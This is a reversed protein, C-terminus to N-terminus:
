ERGEAENQPKDTGEEQIFLVKGGAKTLGNEKCAAIAMKVLERRLARSSQPRTLEELGSDIRFPVIGRTMTLGRLVQDDSCCTVIPVRPRYKSVLRALHGNKTVVAICDIASNLVLSVCSAALTDDAKVYSSTISKLNTLDTKYDITREAEACAKSLATLAQLAFPGAATEDSMIIADTGDTVAIQVDECEARTPKIATAMSDLMQTAMIIPKAVANARDMMWKQAIFVKEPPIEAAIDQRSVIVGDAVQLIEEFNNLGELNEIKAFVKMGTKGSMQETRYLLEKVYDVDERKRTWSVVIVDVGYKIGFETLDTDDREMFAPLDINCGPLKITEKDWIKGGEKVVTKVGTDLIETVEL